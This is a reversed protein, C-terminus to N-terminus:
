NALWGPRELVGQGQRGGRTQSVRRLLLSRGDVVGHLRRVGPLVLEGAVQPLAGGRGDLGRRRGVRGGGERERLLQDNRGWRGGRRRRPRRRGQLRGLIERSRPSVLVGVATRAGGAEAGIQRRLRRCRCRRRSVARRWREYAGGGDCGATLAHQAAGDGGRVVPRWRCGRGGRGGVTEGDIVVVMVLESASSVARGVGGNVEEGHSGRPVM